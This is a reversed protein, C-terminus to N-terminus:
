SSHDLHSPHTSLHEIYRDVEELIYNKIQLELKMVSLPLKFGVMKVEDKQTILLSTAKSREMRESLELEDFYAHDELYVRDVVTDPLFPELRKPNSIATVLLMRDTPNEITVVRNFDREEVVNLDAFLKTFIFERFPGAPFPMFNRINQPFLLIDFKEINVRNFGDDLFIVKAGQKKALNIAKERDESVIVSTNPLSKAMLMPEDGSQFVDTLIEGKYSIKVLGRSQRGYGRSIICSDSYRSALQIVFPTKGSGGVTLNGISVIPISYDQKPILVRRLLMITGFLISLPSLLSILVWDLLNPKFFLREFFSVM